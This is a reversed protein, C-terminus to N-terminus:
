TPVEVEVNVRDSRGDFTNFGAAPLDQVARHLHGAPAPDDIALVRLSGHEREDTVLFLHRLKQALLDSCTGLRRAGEKNVKPRDQNTVTTAYVVAYMQCWCGPSPFGSSGFARQYVPKPGSAM